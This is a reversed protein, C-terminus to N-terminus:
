AIHRMALVEDKWDELTRIRVNLGTRPAEIVQGDGIFMGVHEPHEASGRSFLLDGPRLDSVSLVATGAKVQDYTVRPLNVGAAGWAMQVLSSCDCGNQGQYPSRCDGGWVYPTNLATRSAAIARTAGESGQPLPVSGDMGAAWQTARERILRVYDRTEQYPPIGNYKQVAGPGANYGALMNETSDGPVGKLQEALACDYAAAAPVADAPDLPDKRGDGNGDVGYTSWTGDMFQAIGRAGVPSSVKPDFHSEQYLQAALLSPTLQACKGVLATAILSRLWEPVPASATIGGGPGNGRGPQDAAAKGITGAVAMMLAVLLVGAALLVSGLIKLFKGM